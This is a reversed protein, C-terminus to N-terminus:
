LLLDREHLLGPTDGVIIGLKEKDRGTMAIIDKEGKEMEILLRSYPLGEFEFQYPTNPMIYKKYFHNIVGIPEKNQSEYTLPPAIFYGIKIVKIQESAFTFSFLFLSLTITLPTKFLSFM